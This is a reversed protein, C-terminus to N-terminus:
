WTGLPNLKEFLERFKNNDFTSDTQILDKLKNFSSQGNTEKHWQVAFWVLEYDKYNIRIAQNEKLWKIFDYFDFKDDHRNRITEIETDIEDSDAFDTACALGKTKYDREEIVILDNLLQVQREKPTDAVVKLFFEVHQKLRWYAIKKDYLPGTCHFMHFAPKDDCLTEQSAQIAASEYLHTHPKLQDLLSKFRLDLDLKSQDLEDITEQLKEDIEQPIGILCCIAIGVSMAVGGIIDKALLSEEKEYCIVLTFLIIYLPCAFHKYCALAASYNSHERDLTEKLINDSLRNEVLDSWNSGYQRLDEEKKQQYSRLTNYKEYILKLLRERMALEKEIFPDRNMEKVLSYRILGKLHTNVCRLRNRKSGHLYDAIENTKDFGIRRFGKKIPQSRALTSQYKPDVKQGLKDTIEIVVHDPRVLTSPPSNIEIAVHDPRVM